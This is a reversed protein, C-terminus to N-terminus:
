FFYLSKLADSSIHGFIERTEEIISKQLPYDVGMLDLFVFPLRKIIDDFPVSTENDDFAQFVSCVGKVYAFLNLQLEDFTIEVIEKSINDYLCKTYGPIQEIWDAYKLSSEAETYFRRNFDDRLIETILLNELLLKHIASVNGLSLSKLYEQVKRAGRQLIVATMKDKSEFYIYFSAQNKFGMEKAIMRISTNTYGYQEFLKKSCQIIEAQIRAQRETAM